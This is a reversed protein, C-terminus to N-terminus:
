DNPIGNLLGMIWNEGLSEEYNVPEMNKSKLKENKLRIIDDGLNLIKTEGEIKDFVFIKSTDNSFQDVVIPSHTTIIVQIDKSSCLEQLYTITEQIRRPHIGKEPEELLLVKPPNPQHIIALIAIFYLAGESLEDAWFINRNLDSVGIKKFTDRGYFEKLAAFEPDSQKITDFRIDKFEKICNNLDENVHNMVEINVDKMKDFFSVLNSADENVVEDGSLPYPKVIKNPDPKYIKISEILNIFRDEFDDYTISHTLFNKFDHSHINRQLPFSGPIFGPREQCILIKRTNQIQYKILDSLKFSEFDKGVISNYENGFSSLTFSYFNKTITEIDALNLDPGFGSNNLLGTFFVVDNTGSKYFEIKIMYSKGNELICKVTFSFPSNLSIANKNFSNASLSNSIGYFDVFIKRFFVLARLFNTKGSNNAGIFLNIDKLNVTVDKFSRFNQIRISDIRM